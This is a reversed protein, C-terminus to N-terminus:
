PLCGLLETSYELEPIVLYTLLLMKSVCTVQLDRARIGLTLSSTKSLVLRGHVTATSM